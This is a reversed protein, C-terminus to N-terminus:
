HHLKTKLEDVKTSIAEKSRQQRGRLLEKRAEWKAKREADQAAAIEAEVDAVPRRLVTGGLHSMAADVVEPSQESVVALLATRGIHVSDSIASLASDTDEVDAIDFLSGV